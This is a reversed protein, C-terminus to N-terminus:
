TALLSSFAGWCTGFYIGLPERNGDRPELIVDGSANLFLYEFLADLLSDVHENVGGGGGGPIDSPLPRKSAMIIPIGKMHVGTAM